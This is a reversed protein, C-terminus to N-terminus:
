DSDSYGFGISAGLAGALEMQISQKVARLAEYLAELSARDENLAVRFPSKVADLAAFADNMAAEFRQAAGPNAKRVAQALGQGKGTGHEGSYIAQVGRLNDRLHDLSSDSRPAEEYEPHNRGDSDAGLPKALKAMMMLEAVYLQRTVLQHVGHSHRSYIKSDV